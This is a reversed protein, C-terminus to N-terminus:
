TKTAQEKLEKLLKIGNKSDAKIYRGNRGMILGPKNIHTSGVVPKDIILAKLLTKQDPANNTNSDSGRNELVSETSSQEQETKTALEKLLKIGNKSDAKIYRGNRGLILGPKDIRTSGIVPKDIISKRLLIKPIKQDSQEQQEIKPEPKKLVLQAYALCMLYSDCIDDKKKAKKLYELTDLEKYRSLLIYALQVAIEKNKPHKNKRNVVIPPENAMPIYFNLKNKAHYGMIKSVTYHTQNPGSMVGKAKLEEIRIMFYMFINGFLITTKNNKAPQTEILITICKNKSNEPIRLLDLKDLSEKMKTCIIDHIHTNGNDRELIAIPHRRVIKRTDSDVITADCNIRGLDIGLLDM